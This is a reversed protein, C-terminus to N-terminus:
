NGFRPCFILFFASVMGPRILPLCRGELKALAHGALGRLKRWPTPYRNWSASNSKISFAMYRAIYAV